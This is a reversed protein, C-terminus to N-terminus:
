KSSNVLGRLKNAVFNETKKMSEKCAGGIHPTILLNKGLFDSNILKNTKTWNEGGLIEDSLVDLAAGSIKKKALMELLFEEDLVDGRSTNILYSNVKMKSLLNKNVFGINDKSSPIHITLIDSELFLRDLSVNKFADNEKLVKGETDFFLVEMEFAKAIKGVMQGIRGLGLIGIKKGKIEEGIFKDRSWEGNKVNEISSTLKRLLALILAWTLEATPTINKLFETEDQLSVIKIKSNKPLIIHNTGTTSTVIFKLNKAKKLLELGFNFNLKIVLIDISPLNKEIIELNSHGLIVEGINEYISIAEKSYGNSETILIKM